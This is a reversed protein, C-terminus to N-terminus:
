LMVIGSAPPVEGRRLHGLVTTGDLPFEARLAERHERLVARNHASRAVVLIVRRLSPDDRVKLAIRRALEQADHLHVEAEVACAEGRGDIRADWARRDGPIPLPVERRMRLPDALRTALRALLALQGADRMPEGAPYLKLSLVQGLVAAMRALQDVTAHQVEGRELRSVQSQSMRGATGVAAQSLGAAIRADRLEQGIAASARRALLAGRDGRTTKTPM